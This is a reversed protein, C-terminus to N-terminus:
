ILLVINRMARAVLGPPPVAGYTRPQNFAGPLNGALLTCVHSAPVKDRARVIKVPSPGRALVGAGLPADTCSVACGAMLTPAAIRAGDECEEHPCTGCPGEHAFEIAVHGDSGHCVVFLGSSAAGVLIYAAVCILAIGTKVRTGKM